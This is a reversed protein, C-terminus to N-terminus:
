FTWSPSYFLILIMGSGEAVWIVVPASSGTGSRVMFLAPCHNSDWWRSTQTWIAWAPYLIGQEGEYSFFGVLSCALVYYFLKLVIPCLFDRLTSLPNM